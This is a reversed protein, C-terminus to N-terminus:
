KLQHARVVFDHAKMCFRIYACYRDNLMESQMHLYSGYAISLCTYFGSQIMKGIFEDGWLFSREYLSSCNRIVFRPLYSTVHSQSSSSECFFGHANVKIFGEICNYPLDHSRGEQNTFNDMVATQM